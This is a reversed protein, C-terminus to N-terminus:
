RVIPCYICLSLAVCCGITSLAYYYCKAHHPYKMALDIIEKVFTSVTSLSGAFGVRAAGLLAVEWSNITDLDAYYRTQVAILLVSIISALLNATLTGWHLWGFQRWRSSWM